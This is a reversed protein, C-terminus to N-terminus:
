KAGVKKFYRNRKRITGDPNKSKIVTLYWGTIFDNADVHEYVIVNSMKGNRYPIWKGVANKIYDIEALTEVYRYMEEGVKVLTKEDIRKYLNKRM